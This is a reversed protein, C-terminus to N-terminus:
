RARSPKRMLNVYRSPYLHRKPSTRLAHGKRHTANTLSPRLAQSQELGATPWRYVSILGQEPVSPDTDGEFDRLLHETILVTCGTDENAELNSNDRRM